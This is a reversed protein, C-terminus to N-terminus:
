TAKITVKAPRYQRGPAQMSVAAREHSIAQMEPTLDNAEDRLILPPLMVLPGQLVKRAAVLVRLAPQGQRSHVPRVVVDGFRWEACATLISPLRDARSILTMGGRDALLGSAVKIWGALDDGAMAQRRYEHDSLSSAEDNYPPNCFVHDFGGSLGAMADPDHIDAALANMGPALNNEAINRRLLEVMLPDREVATIQMEPCRRALALSAAGAGAGLEAVHRCDPDVAAAVIVADTTARFGDRAQWLDLSGDYWPTCTLEPETMM